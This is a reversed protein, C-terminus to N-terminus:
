KTAYKDNNLMLQPYDVLRVPEFKELDHGLKRLPNNSRMTGIKKLRKKLRYWTKDSIMNRFERVGNQNIISQASALELLKNDKIRPNNAKLNLFISDVNNDDVTPIYNKMLQEYYGLMLGRALGQDFLHGFAVDQTIGYKKLTQKIKTRTNLRMELRLVEFPNKAREKQEILDLLSLQCYDDKDLARKESIKSQELDKVKDYFSFEFLNSHQKYSLGGNRYDTKNIDYIKSIDIQKLEKIYSYPTSYDTLVINKGYHIASIKAESLRSRTILVGQTKLVEILKEKVLEFDDDTLEDFNNGFVLKPLSVEIYLVNQYGLNKLLRRRITMRPLYLGKKKDQNSPNKKSFTMTGKEWPGVGFMDRTPPSFLDHELITFMSQDLEMRITDIM